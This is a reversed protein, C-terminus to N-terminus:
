ITNVYTSRPRNQLETAKKGTCGGFAYRRISRKRNLKKTVLLVGARIAATITVAARRTVPLACIELYTWPEM